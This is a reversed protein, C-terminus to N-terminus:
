KIPIKYSDCAWGRTEKCLLMFIFRLAALSEELLGEDIFRIIKHLLLELIRDHGFFFPM